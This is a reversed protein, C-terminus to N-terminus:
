RTTNAENVVVARRLELGVFNPFDLYHHLHFSIMGDLKVHYNLRKFTM